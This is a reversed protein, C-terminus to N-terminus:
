GRHAPSSGRVKMDVARRAVASGVRCFIDVFFWFTTLPVDCIAFVFHLCHDAFPSNTLLVLLGIRWLGCQNVSLHAFLNLPRM